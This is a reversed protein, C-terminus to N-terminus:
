AIRWIMVESYVEAVGVNAADGLGTTSKTTQCRHQLEINKTGAITFRGRVFSRSQVSQASESREVTGVLLDAGDTTNRLKAVHNDVSIAPCSADIFYTGAPLSIVSSTVTASAIENTKTTNLTRKVFSGSTFTGGDTSAVQEERVHLLGGGFIDALWSPASAGIVLRYGATGKALRAITDAATAYLLDGASLSLAEITSLTPPMAAGGGSVSLVRFQTSPSTLYMVEVLAGSPIDGSALAASATGKKIAVAGVSNVNLTTAGTNSGAAIFAFRQGAAYAAIAPTATGVITDSGSVSTLLHLPGRALDGLLRIEAMMDRGADNVASPAMGEPMGNPPAADNDAPTSSYKTFAM